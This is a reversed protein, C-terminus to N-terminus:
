GPVSREPWEGALFAGVARAFADPQELFCKHGAGELVLLRAGPLRHALERAYRLPMEADEDGAVVLTPVEVRELEVGDWAPPTALARGFWARGREELERRAGAIEGAHAALHLEGTALVTNLDFLLAPDGLETVRGLVEGMLRLRPGIRPGTGVLVLREVLDPRDVALQQAVMGGLSAGVVAAPGLGLHDLLAAADLALVPVEISPAPTSRGFGRQDYTVVTSRTALVPALSGWYGAADGTAGHVLLVPRGTGTVEHHLEAGDVAFRPM